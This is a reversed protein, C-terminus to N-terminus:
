IRPASSFTSAWGPYRAALFALPLALLVTFGAGAASLWVSALTADVMRDLSVSAPTIAAAGHQTLWYVIMGLPVGLTAVVLAAFGALVPLTAGGLEYPSARRRAGRGLRAYRSAARVRMEAVVCILCLVILVVALLSAGPGDFSTRYEAYIETTFTRFRLLTFAGFEALVDLAVLLM